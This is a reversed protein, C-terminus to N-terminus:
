KETCDMRLSYLNTVFNTRMVLKSFLMYSYKSTGSLKLPCNTMTMKLIFVFSDLWEMWLVPYKSFRGTFILNCILETKKAEQFAM